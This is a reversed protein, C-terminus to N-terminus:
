PRLYGICLVAQLIFYAPDPYKCWWWVDNMCNICVLTHSHTHRCSHPFNCGRTCQKWMMLGAPWHSHQHSTNCWGSFDRSELYRCATQEDASHVCWYICLALPTLPSNEALLCLCYFQVEPCHLAPPYDQSQQTHGTCVCLWHRNWFLWWLTPCGQFISRPVNNTPTVLHTPQTRIVAPFSLFGPLFFFKLFHVSGRTLEPAKQLHQRELLYVSSSLTESPRPSHVIPIVYVCCNPLACPFHKLCIHLFTVTFLHLNTSLPAVYLPKQFYGSGKAKQVSWQMTSKVANALWEESLPDTSESAVMYLQYIPWSPLTELLYVSGTPLQLPARFYSVMANYQLIVTTMEEDHTPGLQPAAGVTWWVM